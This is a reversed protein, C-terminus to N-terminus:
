PAWGSSTFPALSDAIPQWASEQRDTSQSHSLHKKPLSSKLRSLLERVYSPQETDKTQTACDQHSGSEAWHTHGGSQNSIGVGTWGRCARGLRSTQHGEALQSASALSMSQFSSAESNSNALSCVPSSTNAKRSPLLDKQCVYLQIGQSVRFNPEM